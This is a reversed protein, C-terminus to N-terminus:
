IELKSCIKKLKKSRERIAWEKKTISFTTNKLKPSRPIVYLIDKDKEFVYYEM